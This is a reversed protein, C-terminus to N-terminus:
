GVKVSEALENYPNYVEVVLYTVTGVHNMQSKESYQLQSAVVVNDSEQCAAAFAADGGMVNNDDFYGNFIIDFGIVTPKADEHENLKNILDAYYQRSWTGIPGLEELTREDIAIIKIQSDVGRPVQYVFDKLMYDASAFLNTITLVFVVIFVVAAELIDKIYRKM